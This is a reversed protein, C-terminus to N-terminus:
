SGITLAAIKDDRLTFRYRIQAPSGPFSGSVRATAIIQGDVEALDAVDAVPKYKAIAGEIWAKIAAGRYEHTEDTVRADLTFLQNFDATEGTNHAQFFAAIVPPLHTNM